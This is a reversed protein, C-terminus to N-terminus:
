EAAHSLPSEEEADDEDDESEEPEDVVRQALKGGVGMEVVMPAVATGFRDKPKILIREGFTDSKKNRDFGFHLHADVAHLLTNDGAFHGSKTVHNVFMMVGSTEGPKASKAWGILKQACQIPTNKTKRGTDYKGSDLAQLSDQIIIVRRHKSIDKEKANEKALGAQLHRAHEVVDDVFVDEGNIFGDNIELRECAMKVQYVSEERMNYLVVHRVKTLANAITLALTTKGCGSDGTLMWCTSPTFGGGLTYDIFQEGTKLKIRLEPPVIVTNINKGHYKSKTDDLLKM